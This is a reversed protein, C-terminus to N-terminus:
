GGFEIGINGDIRYKKEIALAANCRCISYLEWPQVTELFLQIVKGSALHQRGGSLKLFNQNAEGGGRNFKRSFDRTSRDSVMPIQRPCASAHGDVVM